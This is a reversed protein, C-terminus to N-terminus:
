EPKEKTPKTPFGNTIIYNLIVEVAAESYRRTTKNSSNPSRDVYRIDEDLKLDAVIRNLFYIGMLPSKRKNLGKNVLEVVKGPAYPHDGKSRSPVSLSNSVVGAVLMPFHNRLLSPADGMTSKASKIANFVDDGLSPQYTGTMGKLKSWEDLAKEMSTFVKIASEIREKQFADPAYGCKKMMSVIDRFDNDIRRSVSRHKQHLFFSNRPGLKYNLYDKTFAREVINNYIIVSMQGFVYIMGDSADAVDHQVANRLKSVTIAVKAEDDKLVSLLIHQPLVSGGFCLDVCYSFLHTQDEVVTGNAKVLKISSTAEYIVAKFLMELSHEILLLTAEKRGDETSGNFIDIARIASSKASRLLRDTTPKVSSAL